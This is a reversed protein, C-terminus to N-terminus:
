PAPLEEVAKYQVTSYLYMSLVQVSRGIASCMDKM